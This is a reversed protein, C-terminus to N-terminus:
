EGGREAAARARLYDRLFDAGPVSRTARAHDLLAQWGEEAAEELCEARIFPAAAELVARALSLASEQARERALELTDGHAMFPLANPDWAGPVMVRAAAEVAENSITM